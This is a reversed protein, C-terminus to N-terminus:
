PALDAPPVDRRVESWPRLTAANPLPLAGLRTAYHVTVDGRDAYLRAYYRTAEDLEREWHLGERLVKAPFVSTGDRLDVRIAYIGPRRPRHPALLPAVCEPALLRRLAAHLPEAHATVLARRADLAARSRAGWEDRELASLPM